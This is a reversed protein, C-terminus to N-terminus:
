EGAPREDLRLEIRQQRGDRLVTLTVRQGVSRDALYVILDDMDQVAVDDIAVIIDGGTALLAGEFSVQRDGGRLGAKAAPGDEVVSQVLVGQDVPLDLEEALLSTISAGQIGLWPDAYRGTAILPPVVRKVTNVPVAFGVGANTGSSSFILTTVGIVQGQSDLLPGGSNGPNIAADTQILQPLSFGSQQRLVRGLASVIGTTMTQELGFPNGIAIARQGVLLTDSDGLVVPHLRRAPVDVKIVALDSDADTGVVEAEATTDDAFRVEIRRASEVVHNNTVIHGETDWVFGSGTGSGTLSGTTVAIHVVSPSVRKYLEIFLQEEVDGLPQPTSAMEAVTDPLPQPPSAVETVAEAPLSVPLMTPASTGEVPFSAIAEGPQVGTSVALTWVLLAVALGGFFAIVSRKM